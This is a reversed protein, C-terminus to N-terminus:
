RRIISIIKQKDWIPIIMVDMSEILKHFDMRPTRLPAEGHVLVYRTSRPLNSNNKLDYFMTFAEKAQIPVVSNEKGTKSAGKVEIVIPKDAEIYFDVQWEGCMARIPFRRRFRIQESRLYSELDAETNDM